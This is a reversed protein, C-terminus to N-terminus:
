RSAFRASADRVVRPLEQPAAELDTRQAPSEGMVVWTGDTLRGIEGARTLAAVASSVSPRRAGVLQGIMRHSLALPLVAGDPTMRGWREVLHWLMLRVRDDVRTMQSIAQTLALRQARDAVRQTLCRTLEPYAALRDATLRDIVALRAEALVSWQEEYSLLSDEARADWPRILDGPGLLELSSVDALIVERALTGRVILLGSLRAGARAIQATNLPGPAFRALSVALESRARAVDATSLAAALEVDLDLLSAIGRPRATTDHRPALM